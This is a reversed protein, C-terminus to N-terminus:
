PNRRTLSLIHMRDAQLSERKANAIRVSVALEFSIDYQATVESLQMTPLLGTLPFAPAFASVFAGPVPKAINRFLGYAGPAPEQPQPQSVHQWHQEVITVLATGRFSAELYYSSEGVEYRHGDHLSFERLEAGIIKGQQVRSGLLQETAIGRIEAEPVFQALYEHELPEGRLFYDALFDGISRRFTLEIGARSVDEALAPHLSKKDTDVFAKDNSILAVPRKTKKAYDLAVFWLVVDRLEEGKDNAPRIRKIGRRVLEEIDIGSYDGYLTSKFKADPMRLLNRLAEAEAHIDLVRFDGIDSMAIKRMETWADAVDRMSDRLRDRYREVVEHFTCMPIVLQSDMRRLDAVLQVFRNTQAFERGRGFILELYINADLIVDM